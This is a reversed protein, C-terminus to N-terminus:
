KRMVLSLQWKEYEIDAYSMRSLCNKGSRKTNNVNYIPSTIPVYQSSNVGNDEIEQVKKLQKSKRRRSPRYLEPIQELVENDNIRETTYDSFFSLVCCDWYLKGGEMRQDEEWSEEIEAMNNPNLKSEANFAAM